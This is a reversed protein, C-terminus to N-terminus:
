TNYCCKVYCVKKIYKTKNEWSEAFNHKHEKVVEKVGENKKFSRKNGVCTVLM